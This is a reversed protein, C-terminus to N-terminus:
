AARAFEELCFERIRLRVPMELTVHDEHLDWGDGPEVGSERLHEELQGIGYEGGCLMEGLIAALFACSLHSRTTFPDGEYIGFVYQYLEGPEIKKPCEECVYQKRARVVRQQWLDAGDGYSCM